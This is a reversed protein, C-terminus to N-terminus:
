GRRVVCHHSGAGRHAVDKVKAVEFGLRLFLAQAAEDAQQEDGADDGTGQFAPMILLSREGPRPLVLANVHYERRLVRQFSLPLRVVDFGADQLTSAYADLDAKADRLELVQRLSARVADAHALDDDLSGPAPAPGPDRRPLAHDIPFRAFSAPLGRAAVLEDLTRQWTARANAVSPLDAPLVVDDVVALGDGAFLMAQDLHFLAASQPMVRGAGDRRGLLRVDDVDFVARLVTTFVAETMTLGARRYTAETQLYDSTGCFLLRQGDHDRAVLLNGGGFYLPARVLSAGRSALLSVLENHPQDPDSAAQENGENAYFLPVVQVDEDGVAFDRAWVSSFWGAPVAIWDIRDLVDRRGDSELERMVAARVTDSSVLLKLRVASPVSEMLATQQRLIERETTPLQLVLSRPSEEYEARLPRGLPARLVDAWAALIAKRWRPDPTDVSGSENRNEASVLQLMALLDRRGPAGDAAVPGADSDAVVALLAAGLVVLSRALM